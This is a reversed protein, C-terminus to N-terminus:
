EPLGPRRAAARTRVPGGGGASIKQRVATCQRFTISASAKERKLHLERPLPCPTGLGRPFSSGWLLEYVRTWFGYGSLGGVGRGVLRLQVFFYVDSNETM